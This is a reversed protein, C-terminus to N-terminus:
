TMTMQKQKQIKMGSHRGVDCETLEINFRLDDCRNKATDNKRNASAGWRL